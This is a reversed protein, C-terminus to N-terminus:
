FGESCGTKPCANSAEEMKIYYRLTEKTAVLTKLKYKEIFVCHSSM